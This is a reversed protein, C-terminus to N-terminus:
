HVGRHLFTLGAVLGLGAGRPGFGHELGAALVLNASCHFTPAAIFGGYNATPAYYTQALAGWRGHIPRLWGVSPMYYRTFGQRCGEWRAVFNTLIRNRGLSKDAYLTLKHDHFGSGLGAAATPQKIAYAVSLLPRRRGERRCIVKVAASTDGTGQRGNTYVYHAPTAYFAVRDTVVYEYLGSLGAATTGSASPERSFGYSVLTSGAPPLSGASNVGPRILKAAVPRPRPKPKEAIGAAQAVPWSVLIQALVIKAITAVPYVGAYGVNPAESKAQNAAFALAAPQTQVGSMLGALTDFPIKLFKYGVILTVLTVGFTIGAGALLLQVGNARFTQVFDYGARTGVGALFLLLGIQRLTLNAAIPIVWTIRGTRELRGLLLAVLLPGGALGLRIAGGGPLPIPMMGALVGLVMGLAVSGFDTEATGRISDGFYKAVPGFNERRTLVRIRDGFELRTDPTPVVDIDGRRLRTITAGLENQLELDRIRRGVVEKSSVFVRRYDLESRDLEIRADSPEGFIQVALELAEEDGVVAVIDGPGLVTESAAIETQGDKRVRSIVFGVDKHVRLVEDITRGLVGPNRVVFDRVTIEPAEEVPESEVRWLRRMFQFCLLVGIVGIPYAISYAVVPQEAAVRLQDASLGNRGGIERLTERAAALAPTNTLAGCFLGAARAGPISLFYSFALTLGAGFVLVAAAFLSDRYGRRRFAGALAPASQIGITYVFIILGLTPVVEPLAISPHLAGIALGMFLVGAVGFRFGFFGIEGLLYGSGIVLFLTLIPFQVLASVFSNQM